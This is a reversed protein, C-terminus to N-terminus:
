AKVPEHLLQEVEGALILRLKSRRIKRNDVQRTNRALCRGGNDRNSFFSVPLDLDVQRIREGHLAAGVIKAVHDSVQEVIGNYMSAAFDPEDAFQGVLRTSRLDP